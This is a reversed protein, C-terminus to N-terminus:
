ARTCGGPLRPAPPQRKLRRPVVRFRAVPGNVNRDVGDRVRHFRLWEQADLYLAAGDTGHLLCTGDAWAIV